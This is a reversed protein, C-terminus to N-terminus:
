KTAKNEEDPPEKAGMQARKEKWINGGESFRM